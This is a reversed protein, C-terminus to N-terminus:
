GGPFLGLLEEAEEVRGVSGAIALLNERAAELGVERHLAELVFDWAEADRGLAHLVVAVNNYHTAGHPNLRIAEAFCALAREFKGEGFAREGADRCADAERERRLWMERYTESM